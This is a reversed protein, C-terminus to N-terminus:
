NYSILTKKDSWTKDDYQPNKSACCSSQGCATFVNKFWNSISEMAGPNDEQKVEELILPQM